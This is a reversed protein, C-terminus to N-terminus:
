VDSGHGLETQAYAGLIELNRAMKVWKSRHEESGFLELAPLFSSYHLSMGGHDTNSRTVNFVKHYPHDPKNKIGLKEKLAEAKSIRKYYDAIGDERGLYYYEDLDPQIKDM